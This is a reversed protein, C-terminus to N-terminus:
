YNPITIGIGYLFIRDIKLCLSLDYRQRNQRITGVVRSKLWVEPKYQQGLSPTTYMPVEAGVMLSLDKILSIDAGFRNVFAMPTTYLYPQPYSTMYKGGVYFGVYSPKYSVLLTNDLPVYLLDTTSQGKLSLGVLVSLIMLFRKM